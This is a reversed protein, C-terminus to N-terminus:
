VGVEDPTFILDNYAKEITGAILYVEKTNHDVCVVEFATNQKEGDGCRYTFLDRVSYKSSDDVKIKQNM